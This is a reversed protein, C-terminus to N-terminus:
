RRKTARLPDAKSAAALITDIMKATVDKGGHLNDRIAGITFAPGWPFGWWGLVATVLSYPWHYAAPSQGPRVYYVPSPRRWTVVLLSIVYEYVVFKAGRKVEDRMEGVTLRGINRIDM